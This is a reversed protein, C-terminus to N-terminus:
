KKPPPFAVDFRVISEVVEGNQTAPLFTWSTKVAELTREDLGHGLGKVVALDRITGDRTITASLKVNGYTKTRLAEATTSIPPSDLHRPPNVGDALFQGQWDSDWEPSGDTSRVRGMEPVGASKMAARADTNKLDLDEVSSSFQGFQDKSLPALYYRKSGIRMSLEDINDLERFAGLITLGKFSSSGLLVSASYRYSEGRTTKTPQDFVQGIYYQGSAGKYIFDSAQIVMVFDSLNVFNVVFEHAGAVEATLILSGQAYAFAKSAEPAKAAAAGSLLLAALAAQALARIWAPACAGDPGSVGNRSKM